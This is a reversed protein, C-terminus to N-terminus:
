GIKSGLSVFSLTVPVSIHLSWSVCTKIIGALSHPKKKLVAPNIIREEVNKDSRHM